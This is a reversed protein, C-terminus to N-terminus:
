ETEEQTEVLNLKDPISIDDFTNNIVNITITQSTSNSLNANSKHRDSESLSLAREVHTNIKILKLEKHKKNNSCGINGIM